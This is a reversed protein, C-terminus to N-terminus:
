IKNEDKLNWTGDFPFVPSESVSILPLFSDRFKNKTEIEKEIYNWKWELQQSTNGTFSMM